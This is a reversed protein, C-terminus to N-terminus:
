GHHVQKWPLLPWTDPDYREIQSAPVWTRCQGACGGEEASMDCEQLEYRDLRPSVAITSTGLHRCTTHPCDGIVPLPGYGHFWHWDGPHDLQIDAM